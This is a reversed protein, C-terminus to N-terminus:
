QARLQLTARAALGRLISLIGIGRDKGLDIQFFEDHFKPALQVVHTRYIQVSDVLVVFKLLTVFKELRLVGIKRIRPALQEVHDRANIGSCSFQKGVREFLNARIETFHKGLQEAAPA